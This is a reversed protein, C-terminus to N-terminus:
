KRSNRAHQEELTRYTQEKQNIETEIDTLVCIEAVLTATDTKGMKHAQLLRGLAERKRKEIIPSMLPAALAFVRAEAILETREHESLIM